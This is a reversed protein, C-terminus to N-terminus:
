KKTKMSREMFQLMMAFNLNTALDLKKVEAMMKGFRDTTNEIGGETKFNVIDAMLSLYKESMTRKYKKAMVRLIAKVKRDSETKGTLTSIVFDRIKDNKKFSELVNCYNQIMLHNIM